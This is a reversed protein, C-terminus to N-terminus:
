EAAATPESYLRQYLARVEGPLLGDGLFSDGIRVEAHLHLETGPATVSEPTGSEGVAGIVQGRAVQAGVVVEPDIATLHAYRTVVGGGHDIWIQRGRYTDLTEPDSFGQEVTLAALANVEEPTIDRYELDARIVVGEYMALVPTGLGIAVCSSLPYFDVGEHFGNRYERPANPMLRDSDPLCVGAIPYAFGRLGEEPALTAEPTTTPETPTATPTTTRTPVPTTPEVIVGDDDDDGCAGLLAAGLVFLAIWVGRSSGRHVTIRLTM